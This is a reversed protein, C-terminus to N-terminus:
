HGCIQLGDGLLPMDANSFTWVQIFYLRHLWYLNLGDGCKRTAIEYLNLFPIFESMAIIFVPTSLALAVLFRKAMKKYAKEEESTEEAKEPVLYMGCKPCIGPHDQKIEPHMPCTYTTQTSGPVPKAKEKKLHMGCVTCDGPEEYMKDGECLMPCYYKGGSDFHSHHTHKHSQEGHNHTEHNHVHKHDGHHHHEHNNNDGDISVLHMNCVPCNGPQNYVKDGECKMPCYYESHGTNGM